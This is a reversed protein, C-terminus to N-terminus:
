EGLGEYLTNGQGDRVVVKTIHTARGGKSVANKVIARLQEQTIPVGNIDTFSGLNIRVEGQVGQSRFQANGDKIRSAFFNEANKQDIFPETRAKVEYTPQDPGPLSGRVEPILGKNIDRAYELVEAEAALRTADDSSALRRKLLSLDGRIQGTREWELVRELFSSSPRPADEGGRAEDGHRADEPVRPV